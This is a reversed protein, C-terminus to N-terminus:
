NKMRFEKIKKAIDIMPAVWIDSENEKLFLLLERHAELSVNLGHEGGVGHFLFVLLKGSTMAKKVLDIMQAGTEGNIPYSDVNYLDVENLAHMESRVARAAVFDNKLSDMFFKGNLTMDGCTYAFTRQTKGDVAELLINTTKIEESLRKFSYKSLDNEPNQWERGKLTGDCPHIITHNGLEHGEQAAKRWDNIRRKFGESYATLYFTGRLSLSDLIPVVNDLHVNLADDYTLVVTCKSTLLSSNFTLLTSDTELLKESKIKLKESSFPSAPLGEKNYFNVEDPNDAWAYRVYKPNPVRESSVVVDNGEINAEAWVFKKDWDAVSFWRLKEGDKSVLGGGVNDFSLRIQHNEIKSSKLTPGSYVINKENYAWKQAGLALREGVEKKRLPHIDNWEGLDITVAMATNPVALTRLQGDRLVAWNSESPSYNLDMYNPLQSYLFPLEPSKWQTRWDSILTTLLEGYNDPKGANSEGQNWLFGKISYNIFPSIMGNYLATPMNQLSPSGQNAFNPEFVDTVKYQWEGRLDITTGAATLYYLRDPVFGGKGGINTLHVEIVNKGSKLVNAGVNYRRPPYQYPTNGVFVGNIFTSDLDILRGLFLKAAIGVMNEPVDFEKRFVVMGNLDNVGQDEWYGPVTINKWNKSNFLPSIYKMAKSQPNRIRLRLKKNEANMVSPEVSKKSTWAEIPTGGVSTKILGIPVHYKDYVSKAFFYAVASFNLVDKPNTKKWDGSPVDEQPQNINPNTPVFFHRIEPYNATAIDDPYREKVREMPIDMNSQGSCVWVDGFLIDELKIENKGKLILNYPGGAKQPPLLISWKGSTDAQTKFTQKNFELTVEEGISAWGWIKIEKDRQLVMGDSILRPLKIQSFVDFPLLCIAFPLFCHAVKSLKSIFNKLETFFLSMKKNISLSYKSKAKQRKGKAKQGKSKAKQESGLRIVAM